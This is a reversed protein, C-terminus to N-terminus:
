ATPDSPRSASTSPRVPVLQDPTAAAALMRQAVDEIQPLSATLVNAALTGTITTRDGAAGVISAAAQDVKVDGAQQATGPFAVVGEQPEPAADALGATLDATLQQVARDYDDQGFVRTAETQGDKTEEPNTVGGGQGLQAAIGPNVIVSIAGAPM